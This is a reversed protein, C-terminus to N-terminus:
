QCRFHTHAYFALIILIPPTGKMTADEGDKSLDEKTASEVRIEGSKGKDNDEREIVAAETQTCEKAKSRATIVETGRAINGTDMGLDEVNM